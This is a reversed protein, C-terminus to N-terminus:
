RTPGWVGFGMQLTILLIAYYALKALIDSADYSSRALVDKLGGREVVRDFGIKNLITTVIKAVIKAIIWGIVLIVLFAVLKPVFTAVSSWAESM